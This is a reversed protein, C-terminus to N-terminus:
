WPKTGEIAANIPKASRATHVTMMATMIHRWLLGGTTGLVILQVLRTRDARPCETM